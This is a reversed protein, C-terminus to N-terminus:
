QSRESSIKFEPRYVARAREGALHLYRRHMERSDIEGEIWLEVLAMFEIDDEIAIGRARAREIAREAITRRM